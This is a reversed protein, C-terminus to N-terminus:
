IFDELQDPSIWGFAHTFTKLILNIQNRFEPNKLSVIWLFDAEFHQILSITIEEKSTKLNDLCLQGNLCSILWKQLCGAPKFIKM